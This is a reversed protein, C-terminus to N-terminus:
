HMVRREFSIAGSLKTLYAIESMFRGNLFSRRRDSLLRNKLERGEPM